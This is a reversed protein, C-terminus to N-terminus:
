VKLDVREAGAAVDYLRVTVGANLALARGDPSWAAAMVFGRQPLSGLRDGTGADWLHVAKENAATALWTGDPSLAALGNHTVKGDPHSETVRVDSSIFRATPHPRGRVVAYRWSATRGGDPSVGEGEVLVLDDGRFAIALQNGRGIDTATWRGRDRHWLRVARYWRGVIWEGDPSVALDELGHTGAVEEAPALPLEVPDGGALPWIVVRDRHGAALAPGDPGPVFALCQVPQPPGRFALM